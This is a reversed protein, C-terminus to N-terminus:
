TEVMGNAESGALPQHDEFVKDGAGPVPLRVLTFSHGVCFEMAVAVIREVVPGRRQFLEHYSRFVEPVLCEGDSVMVIEAPGHPKRLQRFGKIDVTDDTGLYRELAPVVESQYDPVPLAVTVEAAEDSGYV